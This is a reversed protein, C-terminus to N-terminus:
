PVVFLGILLRKFIDSPFINFPISNSYLLLLEGVVGVIFILAFLTPVIYTEPRDQYPLFTENAFTYNYDYYDFYDDLVRTSNNAM